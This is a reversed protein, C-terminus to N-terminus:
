KSFKFTKLIAKVIPTRITGATGQVWIDYGSLKACLVHRFGGPDGGPDEEEGAYIAIKGQTIRKPNKIRTECPEWRRHGLAPDIIFVELYFQKPKLDAGFPGLGPQLTWLEYNQVRLYKYNLDDRTKMSSGPPYKFQFGYKENVYSHWEGAKKPAAKSEIKGTQQSLAFVPLLVVLFISVRSVSAVINM